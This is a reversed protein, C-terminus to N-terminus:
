YFNISFPSTFFFVTGPDIQPSTPTIQISLNTTAALPYTSYSSDKINVSSCISMPLVGYNGFGLTFNLSRVAAPPSQPIQSLIGCSGTQTLTIDLLQNVPGVNVNIEDFYDVTTNVLPLTGLDSNLVIPVTPQQWLPERRSGIRMVEDKTLAHSWISVEDFINGFPNYVCSYGTNFGAGFHVPEDVDPNLLAKTPICTFNGLWSTYVCLEVSSITCALYVWTPVTPIAKYVFYNVIKGGLLAGCGVNNSYTYLVYRTNEGTGNIAKDVLGNFTNPLTNYVWGTMSM